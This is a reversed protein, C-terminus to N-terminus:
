FTIVIMIGLLKERTKKEKGKRKLAQHNKEIKIEIVYTIMIEFIINM